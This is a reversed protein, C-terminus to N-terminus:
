YIINAEVPRHDSGVDRHVKYIVTKIQRSGFIWDIKALRVSPIWELGRQRGSITRKHGPDLDHLLTDHQLTAITTGLAMEQVRQAVSAVLTHNIYRTMHRVPALRIFRAFRSREHMANMDGMLVTPTTVDANVLQVVDRIQHMRIAEGRDDLHVGIIRIRSGSEDKCFVELLNRGTVALAHVHWSVVPLRSLVVLGLGPANSDHYPTSVVEYGLSAMATHIEDRLGDLRGFEPIVIIDANLRRLVRLADHPTARRTKTGEVFMGEANWTVVRLKSM